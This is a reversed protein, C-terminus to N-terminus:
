KLIGHKRLINYNVEDKLSKIMSYKLCLIYAHYYLSGKM